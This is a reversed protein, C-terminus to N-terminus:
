NVQRVCSRYFSEFRDQFNPVLIIDKSANYSMRQNGILYQNVKKTKKITHYEGQEICYNVKIIKDQRFSMYIMYNRIHVKKKM